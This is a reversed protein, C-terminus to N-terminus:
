APLGIEIMALGMPCIHCACAQPSETWLTGDSSAVINLVGSDGCHECSM